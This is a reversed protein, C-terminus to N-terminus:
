SPVYTLKKISTTWSQTKEYLGFSYEDLVAHIIKKLILAVTENLWWLKYKETINQVEKAGPIFVVRKFNDM